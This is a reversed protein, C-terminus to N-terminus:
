HVRLDFPSARRQHSQVNADAEAGFAVQGGFGPFEMAHELDPLALVRKLTKKRM